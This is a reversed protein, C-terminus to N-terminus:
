SAAWRTMRWQRLVAALLGLLLGILQWPGLVPALGITCVPGVVLGAAYYWMFRDALMPELAILLLYISLGLWPLVVIGGILPGIDVFTQRTADWRGDASAGVVLWPNLWVSMMAGFGHWAAWPVFPFWPQEWFRPPTPPPLITFSTPDDPDFALMCRDCATPDGPPPLRTGCDLCYRARQALIPHWRRPEDREPPEIVFDDDPLAPNPIFVRDSEPM